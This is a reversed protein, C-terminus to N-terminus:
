NRSARARKLAKSRSGLTMSLIIIIIAAVIIVLWMLARYNDARETTANLDDITNKLDTQLQANEESLRFAESSFITSNANAFLPWAEAPVELSKLVAVDAGKMSYTMIDPAAGGDYTTLKYFILTGGNKVLVTQTDASVYNAALVAVIISFSIMIKKM